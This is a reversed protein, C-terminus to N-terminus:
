HRPYSFKNSYNNKVNYKFNNWSETIKLIEPIGYCIVNVSKKKVKVPKM